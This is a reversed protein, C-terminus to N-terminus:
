APDRRWTVRWQGDNFCGGLDTGDWFNSGLYILGEWIMGSSIAVVELTINQSTTSGSSITLNAPIFDITGTVVNDAAYATTSDEFTIENIWTPLAFASDTFQAAAIASGNTPTITFTGTEPLASINYSSYGTSTWNTGGIISIIVDGGLTPTTGSVFPTGSITGIGQISFEEFDLNGSASGADAANTFTTAEGKLYNFWKGEKKVFEDVKGEQLDTIIQEVYWGNTAM